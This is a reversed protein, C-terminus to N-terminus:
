SEIRSLYARRRTPSMALIDHEAWGYHTALLHVEELLAAAGASVEAWLYDAPDLAHQSPNGCGTCSLTLYFGRAAALAALGEDVEQLIAPLNSGHADDLSCRELLQHTAAEPDDINALSALDGVTPLRFRRGDQSVFSPSDQPCEGAVDAADVAIEMREGCSPCDAYGELSSGFWQRRLQLLHWDRTPLDIRSLTDRSAHPLAQALLHLSRDAVPRRHGGEWVQLLSEASLM